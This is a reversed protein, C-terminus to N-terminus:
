RILISNKEPTDVASNTHSLRKVLYGPQDRKSSCPREVMFKPKHSRNKIKIKPKVRIQEPKLVISKSTMEEPHILRIHKSTIVNKKVTPENHSMFPLNKWM